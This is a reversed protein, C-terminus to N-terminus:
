KKDNNMYVTIKKFSKILEMGDATHKYLLYKEVNEDEIQVIAITYRNLAGWFLVGEKTSLKILKDIRIIRDRYKSIDIKTVIQTDSDRTEDFMTCIEQAHKYIEPSEDITNIDTFEINMNLVKKENKKINKITNKITNKIRRRVISSPSWRYMGKLILIDDNEKKNSTFIKRICMKIEEM